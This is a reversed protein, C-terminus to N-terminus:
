WGQLGGGRREAEGKKRRRIESGNRLIERRLVAALETVSTAIRRICLDRPV